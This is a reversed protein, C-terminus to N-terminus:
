QGTFGSSRPAGFLIPHSRKVQLIEISKGKNSKTLLLTGQRQAPLLLIVKLYNEGPSCHAIAMMSQSAADLNVM